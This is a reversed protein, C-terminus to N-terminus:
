LVYNKFFVAPQSSRVEQLIKSPDDTEDATFLSIFWINRKTRNKVDLGIEIGRLVSNEHRTHTKVNGLKTTKM